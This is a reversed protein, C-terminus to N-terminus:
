IREDPELTYRTKGNVRGGKEYKFGFRHLSTNDLLRQTYNRWIDSSDALLTDQQIGRIDTLYNDDIM